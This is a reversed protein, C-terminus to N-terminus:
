QHAAVLTTTSFSGLFGEGTPDHIIMANDDNTGFGPTWNMSHGTEDSCRVIFTVSDGRAGNIRSVADYNLSISSSYNGDLFNVNNDAGASGNRRNLVDHLAVFSGGAFDDGDIICDDPDGENDVGGDGSYDCPAVSLTNFGGLNNNVGAIEISAGAADDMDAPVLFNLVAICDRINDAAGVGIDLGGGLSLAGCYGQGEDPVGLSGITRWVLASAVGTDADSYDVGGYTGNTGEPNVMNAGECYTRAQEVSMTTSSGGGASCTGMSDGHAMHAPVASDDIRIDHANGPNGPPVHCISVTGAFAAAATLLLGTSLLATSKLKM